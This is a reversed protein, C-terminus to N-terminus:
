DNAAPRRARCEASFHGAELEALTVRLMHAAAAAADEASASPLAVVPALRGLPTCLILVGCELDCADLLELLVTRALNRFTKEGILEDVDVGPTGHGPSANDSRDRKSM